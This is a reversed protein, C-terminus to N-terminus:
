SFFVRELKDVSKRCIPCSKKNRLLQKACKHCACVHNCPRFITDRTVEFCINCSSDIPKSKPKPKKGDDDDDDDDNINIENTSDSFDQFDSSSSSSSDNPASNIGLNIEKGDLILNNNVISMTRYNPDGPVQVGNVFIGNKDITVDNGNISMSKNTRFILSNTISTSTSLTSLTSSTSRKKKSRKKKSGTISQGKITVFKGTALNGYGKTVTIHQGNVRNHHGEVVIHTGQIRNYNGGKVTVHSGIIKNYSGYIILHSGSITNRDGYIKLHNGTILALHQHYTKHNGSFSM